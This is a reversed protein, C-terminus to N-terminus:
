LNDLRMSNVHISPIDSLEIIRLHTRHRLTMDYTRAIAYMGNPLIYLAGAGIMDVKSHIQFAQTAQHRLNGMKTRIDLLCHITTESCEQASKLIDARANDLVKLREEYRRAIAANHASEVNGLIPYM